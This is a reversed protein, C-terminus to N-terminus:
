PLIDITIADADKPLYRALVEELRKRWHIEAQAAKKHRVLDLLRVHGQHIERLDRRLTEPDHGFQRLYQALALNVNEENLKMLMSGLLTLIENGCFRVVAEYFRVATQAFRRPQEVQLAEEELLDALAGIGAKSARSALLRAAIPEFAIRARFVDGITVGRSQLLIGLYRAAVDVQPARIEAGGKAGRRIRLLSESELIRLAERLVPRSVKMQAVVVGEPPLFDGAKIEGRVIQRRLRAAVVEAIKPARVRGLDLPNASLERGQSPSQGTPRTRASIPM